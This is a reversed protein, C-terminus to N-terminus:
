KKIELKKTIPVIKELSNWLFANLTYSGDSLTEPTKLTVFLPSSISAGSAIETKAYAADVMKGDKYLAIIIYAKASTGSNNKLDKVVASIRGETLAANTIDTENEGGFDSYLKLGGNSAFTAETRFERTLEVAQGYEDKVNIKLKYVTDYELPSSPSFTIRNGDIVAGSVEEGNLTITCESANNNLVVRFSSDVDVNKECQAPLESADEMIETNVVDTVRFDDILVTGACTSRVLPIRLVPSKFVRVVKQWENTPTITSGIYASEDAYVINLSAANAGELAKVRFSLMYYKGVELTDGRNPDGFYITRGGQDFVAKLSTPETVFDDEYLELTVKDKYSEELTLRPWVTDSQTDFCNEYLTEVEGQTTFSVTKDPMEGGSAGKIGSFSVTYKTLYKLGSFKIQIRRADNGNIMISDVAADKDISIQTKTATADDIETDFVVTMTEDIGVNYAGDSPTTSEIHPEAGRTTEFRVETSDLTQGYTDKLGSITLTYATDPKMAKNLKLIYTKSDQKAVSKIQKEGNLFYNEPDAATEEDMDNNFALTITSRPVITGGEEPDSSDLKPASPKKTIKVNDFWYNVNSGSIVLYWSGGKEMCIEQEYRKWGESASVAMKTSWLATSGGNAIIMVYGDAADTKIDASITYSVNKELVIDAGDNMVSVQQAWVGKDTASYKVSGSEASGAADTNMDLNRSLGSSSMYKYSYTKDAEDSGVDFSYDVITIGSAAADAPIHIGGVALMAAMMCMLIKETTKRM